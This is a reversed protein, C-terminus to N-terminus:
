SNIPNVAGIMRCVGTHQAGWESVPERVRESVRRGIDMAQMRSACCEQGSSTPATQAGIFYMYKANNRPPGVVGEFAGGRPGSDVGLAWFRPGGAMGFSERTPRFEVFVFHVSFLFLLLVLRFTLGDIPAQVFYPNKLKRVRSRPPGPGLARRPM